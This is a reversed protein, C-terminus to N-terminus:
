PYDLILPWHLNHDQTNKGTVCNFNIMNLKKTKQTNWPNQEASMFM